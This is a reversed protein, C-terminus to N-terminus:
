EKHPQCAPCLYTARGAIVIKRIIDDCHICPNGQRKYVQFRVQFYGPNGGAGLFDSISSGCCEIALQLITVTSTVIMDWQSAGLRNVPTLPHIGADFLIENAYINGIGAIKKADMLFNKIPQKKGVSLKKLYGPHFANSLPEVGIAASFNKELSQSADPPWVVINGFRRSDNFRLEMHNDLFLRLHDHKASPKERPLLALKGTMGLHIILVSKDTMRFLLFKGRRDIAAITKGQIHESLLKGPIPSRLRKDSWTIKVIQCGPLHPLLGRRTVEVEPLEPM